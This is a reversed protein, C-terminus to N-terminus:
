HNTYKGRLKAPCYLQGRNGSNPFNVYENYVGSLVNVTSGPGVRNLAYQIHRWPLSLSGADADNGNVSVYYTGPPLLPGQTPTPTVKPKPAAQVSTSNVIGLGAIVVVSILVSLFIRARQIM